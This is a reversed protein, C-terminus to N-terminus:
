AHWRDPERLAIEAFNQRESSSFVRSELLMNALVQDYTFYQCIKRLQEEPLTGHPDSYYRRLDPLPQQEAFERAVREAEIRYSVLVYFHKMACEAELLEM